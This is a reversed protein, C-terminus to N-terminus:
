NGVTWGPISAHYDGPAVSAGYRSCAACISPTPTDWFLPTPTDWFLPTPTDWFLPTPTDWFLPTPTDRVAPVAATAITPSRCQRFTRLEELRSPAAADHDTPRPGFKRSMENPDLYSSCL